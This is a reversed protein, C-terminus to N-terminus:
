THFAHPLALLLGFFCHFFWQGLLFPGAWCCPRRHERHAGLGEHASPLPFVLTGSALCVLIWAQGHNVSPFLGRQAETEVYVYYPCCVQRRNQAMMSIIKSDAM